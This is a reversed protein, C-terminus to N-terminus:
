WGLPQHSIIRNVPSGVVIFYYICFCIQCITENVTNCVEISAGAEETASGGYSISVVAPLDDQEALRTLEEIVVIFIVYLM